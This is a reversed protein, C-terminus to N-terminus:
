NKAPALPTQFHTKFYDGLAAALAQAFRRQNAETDRVGNWPCEVQIASVTGGDRSGHAAIDYSGSFYIAKGPSPKSPSPISRFDRAELMAGLSQPGRILQAFTQPSRLDLERVSTLRLFKPDSNLAEDSTNLLSGSILYGLEVREDEHRHGHLDLTLGAGHSRAIQKEVEEASDHFRKWTATAMPDGQAAESLERNCDLKSRHLRCIVLHPTGGYLKKLEESIILSLEATNTDKATVGYRRALINAPKLDGGHPVTLIIPLSGPRVDVYKSVEEARLTLVSAALTLLLTSKGFM